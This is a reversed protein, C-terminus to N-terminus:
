GRYVKEFLSVNEGRCEDLQKRVKALEEVLQGAPSPLIPEDHLSRKKNLKILKNLQENFM